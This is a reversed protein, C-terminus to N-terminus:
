GRHAMLLLRLTRDGDYGIQDLVVGFAAAEGPSPAALAALDVAQAGLTIETLSRKLVLATGGHEYGHVRIAVPASLRQEWPERAEKRWTWREDATATDPLTFAPREETFGFLPAMVKQEFDEPSTDLLGGDESTGLDIGWALGASVSMGTLIGEKGPRSQRAAARAQCARWSRRGSRPTMVRGPPHRV